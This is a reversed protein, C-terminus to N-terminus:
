NIQGRAFAPGLLRNTLAPGVIMVLSAISRGTQTVAFVDAYGVSACTAIYYFADVYTKIKPNSNKEATYFALASAALFEFAADVPRHEVWDLLKNELIEKRNFLGRVMGAADEHSIGLWTKLDDQIGPSPRGPLLTELDALANEQEPTMNSARPTIM